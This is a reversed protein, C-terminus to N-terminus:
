ERWKVAELLRENDYWQGVRIDTDVYVLWSRRQPGAYETTGVYWDILQDATIREM